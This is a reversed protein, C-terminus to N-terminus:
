DVNKFLHLIGQRKFVDKFVNKCAFGSIYEHTPINNGIALTVIIIGEQIGNNPTNIWEGSLIYRKNRFLWGLNKVTKTKADWLTKVKSELIMEEGGNTQSIRVSCFISSCKLDPLPTEEFFELVM